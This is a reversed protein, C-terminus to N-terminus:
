ELPSRRGAHVSFTGHQPKIPKRCLGLVILRKERRYKRLQLIREKDRERNRETASATRGLSDRSGVPAPGRCFLLIQVIVVHWTM